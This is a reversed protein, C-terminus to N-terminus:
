QKFYNPLRKRIALYLASAFIISLVSNVSTTVWKGWALYGLAKKENGLILKYYLYSIVPEGIMNVMMALVTVIVTFKVLDKGQRNNLNLKKAATGAVFGIMFKLFLTKPATAVYAPDLLDGIGMGIAGALGGSVGDIIMGALVCFVNGLHFSTYGAPTMIKVQFFTFSVYCAAAMLSILVLKFTPNNKKM